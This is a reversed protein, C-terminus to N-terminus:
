GREADNKVRGRVVRYSDWRWSRDPRNVESMCCRRRKRWGSSGIESCELFITRGIGASYALFLLDLVLILVFYGGPFWGSLEVLLVLRGM